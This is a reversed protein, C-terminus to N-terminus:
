RRHYDRITLTADTRSKTCDWVIDYQFMGPNARASYTQPVDCEASQKKGNLSNLTTWYFVHIGLRLPALEITEGDITVSPTLTFLTEM